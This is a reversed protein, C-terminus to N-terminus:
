DDEKKLLPTQLPNLQQQYCELLTKGNPAIANPDAKTATSLDGFKGFWYMEFWNPLGDNDTDGYENWMYIPKDGFDEHWLREYETSYAAMSNDERFPKDTIPEPALLSLVKKNKRYLEASLAGPTVEFQQRHFGAPAEYSLSRGPLRIKAKETLHTVVEIVGDGYPGQKFPFVKAGRAYKRWILYLKDRKAEPQKGTKWWNIYFGTLDYLTYRMNYSPGLPTNEGYDNWTILQLLRADQDRVDQWWTDMTDLGKSAFVNYPINEKQFMGIPASWEAGADRVARAIDPQRWGWSRGFKGVADVYKAMTAAAKPWSREWGFTQGPQIFSMCGYYYVPENLEKRAWDFVKWMADWGEPTQSLKRYEAKTKGPYTNKLHANGHGLSYYGFILPKGDRRALKPSKGYKELMYKVTDVIRGGCNPDLCITLEFPYDNKEAVKFLADLMAKASKGGAWADIAFGDIGVRMARKIELDASEELSLNTTHYSILDWNRVHGGRQEDIKKSDHRVTKEQRHKHYRLSATGVPNCGMYHAFIKKPRHPVPKPWISSLWVKPPAASRNTKYHLNGLIRASIYPAGKSKFTKPIQIEVKNLGNPILISKPLQALDLGKGEYDLHVELDGKITSRQIIFHGWNKKNKSKDAHINVSVQNEILSLITKNSNGLNTIDHLQKESLVRNWIITEDLLGDLNNGLKAKKYHDNTPLPPRNVTGNSIIRGNYHLQANNEGSLTMAIHVWNNIEISQSGKLVTKNKATLTLTQAHLELAWNDASFITTKDNNSVKLWTSFTFQRPLISERVPSEIRMKPEIALAKGIKGSSLAKRSRDIKMFPLNHTKDLVYRIHSGGYHKEEYDWYHIIGKTLSGKTHISDKAQVGFFPLLLITTKLLLKM